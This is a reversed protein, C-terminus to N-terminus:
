LLATTIQTLGTERWLETMLASEDLHIGSCRLLEYYLVRRVDRSLARICVLRVYDSVCPVEICMYDIQRSM